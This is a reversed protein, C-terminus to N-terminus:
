WFLPQFLVRAREVSRADESSASHVQISSRIWHNKAKQFHEHFNSVDLQLIFVIVTDLQCSPCLAILQLNWLSTFNISVIWIALYIFSWLLSFHFSLVKKLLFLAYFWSYTFIYIYYDPEAKWFETVLPWQQRLFYNLIVSWESSRGWIHWFIKGTLEVILIDSVLHLMM